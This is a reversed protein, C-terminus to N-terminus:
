SRTSALQQGYRETFESSVVPIATIRALKSFLYSGALCSHYSTGAAVLFVNQARDLFQTLLDLYQEQLRLGDKLSTPQEYIEKLMYHEYGQKEALEPSWTITETGREISTGDNIKLLKYGDVDLVAM